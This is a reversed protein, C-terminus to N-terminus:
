DDGRTLELVRDTTWGAAASGRWRDLHARIERERKSKGARVRPRLVVKGEERVFDVDTGPLLGEERRIDEPITVQGKSTIRM